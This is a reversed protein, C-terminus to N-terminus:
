NNIYFKRFLNTKQKTSKKRIRIFFESLASAVILNAFAETYDQEAKQLIQETSEAKINLTFVALITLIALIQKIM